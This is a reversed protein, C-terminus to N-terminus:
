DSIFLGASISRDTRRKPLYDAALAAGVRGGLVGILPGLVILFVFFLFTFTCLLGGIAGATVGAYTGQRIRTTRLEDDSGTGSMLWAAGAGAAATCALMATLSCSIFLFASDPFGRMGNSILGDALGGIAAVALTKPLVPSRQATAAMILALYGVPILQLPILALATAAACAAVCWPVERGAQPWRAKIVFPALVAVALAALGCFEEVPSFRGNGMINGRAHADIRLVIFAVWCLAAYGTVRVFRAVVSPGVPGFLGRRRALWPLGVLATLLVVIRFRDTVAEADTAVTGWFSLWAVWGALVAVAGIGLWYGIKRAMNFEKVALLLGGAIWSLRQRGAPVQEAEARVAEVWQRGSPPLLRAVRELLWTLGGTMPEM